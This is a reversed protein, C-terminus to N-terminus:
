LLAGQKRKTTSYPPIEQVRSMIHWFGSYATHLKDDRVSNKFNDYTINRVQDAITLAVDERSVPARYLYDRGPTRTVKAGPFVREIDGKRRARVLLKDGAINTDVISFFANNLCIWM